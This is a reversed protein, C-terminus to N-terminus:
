GANRILTRARRELRRLERQLEDWSESEAEAYEEGVLDRLRESYASWAQRKGDDIERLKDTDHVLATM